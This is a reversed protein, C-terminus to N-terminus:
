ETTTSFESVTNYTPLLNDYATKLLEKTQPGVNSSYLQQLLSLITALQYTMERSYTSDFKANLRGDELRETIGTGNEEAVIKAPLKETNVDLAAMAKSLDRKTNTLYLKLDSNVSRLQSSKINGTASDVVTTTANLRASFRQWPEKQGNTIAGSVTAIIIILIIVGIAGMIVTRFNLAFVTKKPAEPAIQNLYDLPTQGNQPNM